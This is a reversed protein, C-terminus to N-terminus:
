SHKNLAMMLSCVGIKVHRAVASQAPLLASSAMGRVRAGVLYLVTLEANM